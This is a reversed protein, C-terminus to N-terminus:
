ARSRASQGLRERVAREIESPHEVLGHDGREVRHFRSGPILRGSLEWRHWIRAVQAFPVSEDLSGMVISVPVQPPADDVTVGAMEEFFKRHIPLERGEGHHFLELTEGSPLKSRWREGFGLAPAVLVLPPAEAEGLRSVVALAALAGLSSGVIVAPRADLAAACATEVIASFSLRAFSPVNLDPAVVALGDPAFLSELMARKRGRPSSALGHLYLLNNPVSLVTARRDEREPCSRPPRPRPQAERGDELPNRAAKLKREEQVLSRPSNVFQINAPCLAAGEGICCLGM